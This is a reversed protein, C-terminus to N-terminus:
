PSRYMTTVAPAKPEDKVGVVFRTLDTELGDVDLEQVVLAGTPSPWPQVVVRASHATLWPPTTPNEALTVGRVEFAPPFLEIEIEDVTLEVAFRDRAVAMIRLRLNEAVRPSTLAFVCGALAGFLVATIIVLRRLVPNTQRAMSAATLIKSHM